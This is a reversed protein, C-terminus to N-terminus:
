ESCDELLVSAMDEYAGHRLIPVVKDATEPTASVSDLMRTREGLRAWASEASLLRGLAEVLSLSQLPAPM